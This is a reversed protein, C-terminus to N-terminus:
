NVQLEYVTFAPDHTEIEFTGTQSATFTRRVVQGPVSEIELDYGHVHVETARDSTISVTVQQGKAVTVTRDNPGVRGNSITVPLTVGQTSASSSAAPTAPPTTGTTTVPASSAVPSPSPTGSDSSGCGALAGSAIALGLLAAASRGRLTSLFSM